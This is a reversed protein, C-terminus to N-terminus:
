SSLSDNIFVMGRKQVFRKEESKKNLNMTSANRLSLTHADDFKFGYEAFKLIWYDERQLNVHHHGPTGPPAYTVVLLKCAQFAPMYNDIYKEYVHEIFEVSWGIDFQQSDMDIPSEAFDHLTTFSQAVSPDGDIGRAHLGQNSAEQVMGGPGCGIDLFSKPSFTDLLWELAGVDINTRNLHGGLHDNMIIRETAAM